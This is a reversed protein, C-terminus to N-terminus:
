SVTVKYTIQISDNPDTTIGSFNSRALLTGGSSDNFIGCEKITQATGTCEWTHVLQLINATATSATASAIALGSDTLEAALATNTAAAVTGSTGLALYEFADHAGLGGIMEAVTEKGVTTIVDAM